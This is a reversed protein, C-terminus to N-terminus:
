VKGQMAPRNHAPKVLEILEKLKSKMRERPSDALEKSLEYNEEIPHAMKEYDGPKLSNVKRIMEDADNVIIM